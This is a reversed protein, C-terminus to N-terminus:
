IEGYTSLSGTVMWTNNTRILTFTIIDTNGINGTPVLSGEWNITQPRDNIQISNAIHAPNNQSIVLSVTTSRNNTTPVNTYNAICNSIVNSHYFVTGSSSIDHEVTGTAGFIRNLISSSLQTTTVGRFNSNNFSNSSVASIVGDQDIVVSTGDVKIVGLQEISATSLTVPEPIAGVATSIPQIWHGGNSGVYFIYLVGTESNVWQSGQQANAPPTASVTVGFSGSVNSLDARLLQFGGRTRGDFLTLTKETADYFVEGNQHTSTSLSANNTSSLRLSRTPNPM